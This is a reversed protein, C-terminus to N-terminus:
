KRSSRETQRQEAEAILADFTNFRGKGSALGEDWLASLDDDSLAIAAQSERWTRVAASLAEAESAYEGAAVAKRVEALDEAPLGVTVQEVKGM